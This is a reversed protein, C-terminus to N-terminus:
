ENDATLWVSAALHTSWKTQTYDTKRLLILKHITAFNVASV